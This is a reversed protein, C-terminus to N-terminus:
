WAPGLRRSCLRPSQAASSAAPMSSQRLAKTGVDLWVGVRFYASTCMNVPQSHISGLSKEEAKHELLFRQELQESRQRLLACLM